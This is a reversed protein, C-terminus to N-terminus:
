SNPVSRREETVENTKDEWSVEGEFCNLRCVCSIVCLPKGVPNDVPIVLENIM